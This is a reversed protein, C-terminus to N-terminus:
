LNKIQDIVYKAFDIKMADKVVDSEISLSAQKAAEKVVAIKGSMKNCEAIAAKYTEDNLVIDKYNGHRVEKITFCIIATIIIVTICIMCVIIDM